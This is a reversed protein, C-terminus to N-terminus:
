EPWFLGIRMKRVSLKKVERPMVTSFTRSHSCLYRWHATAEPTASDIRTVLQLHGAQADVDIVMVRQLVAQLLYLAPNDTRLQPGLLLAHSGVELGRQIAVSALQTPESTMLDTM